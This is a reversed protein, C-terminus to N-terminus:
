LAASPCRRTRGIKKGTRDNKKNEGIWSRKKRLLRSDKIVAGTSTKKKQPAGAM